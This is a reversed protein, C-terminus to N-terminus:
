WSHSLVTPLARRGPATQAVPVVWRRSAALEPEAAAALTLGAAPSDPHGVTSM